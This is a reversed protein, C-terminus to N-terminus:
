SAADLKTLIAMRSPYTHGAKCQDNGDPRKERAIGAAGCTPCFGLGTPSPPPLDLKALLARNRNLLQTVLEDDHWRADRHRIDRILADNARIAQALEEAHCADLAARAQDRFNHWQPYPNQILMGNKVTSEFMVGDPNDGWESCLARAAREVLPSKPATTM